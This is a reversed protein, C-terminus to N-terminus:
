ARCTNCEGEEDLLKSRIYDSVTMNAETSMDQIAQRTSPSVRVHITESATEDVREFGYVKWLATPIQVGNVRRPHKGRYRDLESWKVIRYPSTVMKQLGAMPTDLILCDPESDVIWVGIVKM